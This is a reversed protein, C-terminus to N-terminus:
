SYIHPCIEIYTNFYFTGMYLCIRIDIRTHLFLICKLYKEKKAVLHYKYTMADINLESVKSRIINVSCPIEFHIGENSICITHFVDIM